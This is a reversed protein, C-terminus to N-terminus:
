IEMTVQAHKHNSRAYGFGKGERRGGEMKKRERGGERGRRGVSTNSSLAM